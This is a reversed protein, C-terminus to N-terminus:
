KYNKYIELFLYYKFNSKKLLVVRPRYVDSFTIEVENDIGFQKIEESRNFYNDFLLADPKGAFSFWIRVKELATTHSYNECPIATTFRSFEDVMTIITVFGHREKQKDLTLHDCAVLQGPRTLDHRSTNSSINCMRKRQCCTECADLIQSVQNQTVEWTPYLIKLMSILRDRGIQHHCLKHILKITLEIEKEKNMNESNNEKMKKALDLATLASLFTSKVLPSEDEFNETWMESLRRRNGMFRAQEPGVDQWIKFCAKESKAECLVPMVNNDNATDHRALIIKSVPKFDEADKFAAKYQALHTDKITKGVPLDRSWIDSPNKDSAVARIKVNPFERIKNIYRLNRTSAQSYNELLSRANANDIYLNTISARYVFHKTCELAQAAAMLELDLIGYRTEADTCVRGHFIVPLKNQDFLAIGIQYGSSDSFLHLETDRAPIVLKNKLIHNKWDTLIEELRAQAKMKFKKNEKPDEIAELQFRLKSIENRQRTFFPIFKSSYNFFGFLRQFVKTKAEIKATKIVADISKKTKDSSFLKGNGILLGLYAVYPKAVETKEISFRFNRQLARGFLRKLDVAHAQLAQEESMDLTGSAQIVDHKTLTILM